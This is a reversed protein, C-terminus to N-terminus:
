LYWRVRGFGLKKTHTRCLDSGRCPWNRCQRQGNGRNLLLAQCKEEDVVEPQFQKSDELRAAERASRTNAGRLALGSGESTSASPRASGQLYEQIFSETEEDCPLCMVDQEEEEIREFLGDPPLDEDEMQQDFFGDDDEDDFHSAHRSSTAQLSAAFSPVTDSTRLDAGGPAGVAKDQENGVGTGESDVVM